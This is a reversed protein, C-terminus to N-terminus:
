FVSRLVDKGWRSNERADLLIVEELDPFAGIVRSFNATIQPMVWVAWFSMNSKKM